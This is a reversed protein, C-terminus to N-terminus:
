KVERFYTQLLSDGIQMTSQTAASEMPMAYHKYDILSGDVFLELEIKPEGDARFEQPYPTPELVRPSLDATRRLVTSFSVFEVWTAVDFFRAVKHLVSISQRGYNPDELRTIASQRTGLKKALQAQSLGASERMLRIQIAVRNSVNAKAFESRYAKSALRKLRKRPKTLRLRALTFPPIAKSRKGDNAQLEATTRLNINTTKILPGSSSQLNTMKQGSTVWQDNSFVTPSSNSKM